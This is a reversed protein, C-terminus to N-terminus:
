SLDMSVSAFGLSSATAAFANMKASQYAYSLTSRVSPMDVIVAAHSQVLAIGTSANQLVTRRVSTEESNTDQIVTVFTQRPANEMPADTKAFQFM